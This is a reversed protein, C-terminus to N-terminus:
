KKKNKRRSAKAMKMKQKKKAKAKKSSPSQPNSVFVKKTSPIVSQGEMINNNYIQLFENMQDQDTMDFGAKNGMTMFSKAMGFKSSDNMIANFEPEIETLYDIIIDANSLKYKSGLFKWFALLEPIADDADEPASLSIKRPFLDTIIEDIHTENMQPLTVGIYGIGYYILQAIWFGMGPDTKIHEKGQVSLAFEELVSDQYQALAEESEYSGDYEVEDLQNINFNM